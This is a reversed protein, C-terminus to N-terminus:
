ARLRRLHNDWSRNRTDVLASVGSPSWRELRGDGSSMIFERDKASTVGCGDELESIGAIRGTAADWIVIQNGKPCSTAILTGAPDAAVAGVYNQCARALDDPMSLTTMSRGPHYRGVIPPMEATGGAWQAGFWVSGVADFTLHRLSLLKLEAPLSATEIVEGHAISVRVLSSAMSDLDLMERGTDPHTRFGGNAIVLSQGDPHLLLEHPGVGGSPLEGIRRYGATVDYIGVVGMGTAFDNETAYLLRGDRAFVGHGFFHRDPPSMITHVIRRQTLDIVFALTGPRRAFIVATRGSPSFATDHLRTEVPIVAIDRGAGDFLVAAFSGDAQRCGSIFFAGEADKAFALHQPGLAALATAGLVFTRRNTAM